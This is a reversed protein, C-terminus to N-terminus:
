DGRLASAAPLAARESLLLFIATLGIAIAAVLIAFSELMGPKATMLLIAGLVLGIRIGLSSKLLPGQLQATLESQTAKEKRGINRIARLRGGSIAGLAGFLLVAAVALKPWASSWVSIRDALFGGSLFL